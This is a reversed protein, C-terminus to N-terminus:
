HAAPLPEVEEGGVVSQHKGDGRMVWRLRHILEM